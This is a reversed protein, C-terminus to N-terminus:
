LLLKKIVTLGFVSCIIQYDLKNAFYILSKSKITHAYLTKSGYMTKVHNEIFSLLNKGYGMNQFEPLIGVQLCFSTSLLLPFAIVYGIVANNHEQVFIYKRKLLYQYLPGYNFLSGKSAIDYITPLDSAAAERIVGM